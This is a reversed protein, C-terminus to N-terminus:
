KSMCYKTRCAARVVDYVGYSAQGINYPRILPPIEQIEPPWMEFIQKTAAGFPGEEKVQTLKWRPKWRIHGWTTNSGKGIIKGKNDYLKMTITSYKEGVLVVTRLTWHGNQIGCSVADSYDCQSFTPMHKVNHWDYIDVSGLWKEPNSWYQMKRKLSYPRQLRDSILINLPKSTGSTGDPAHVESIDIYIQIAQFNGRPEQVIISGDPENAFVLSMFFLVIFM